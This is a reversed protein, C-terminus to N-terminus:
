FIKMIKTILISTLAMIISMPIPIDVGIDDETNDSDIDMLELDGDGETLNKPMNNFDNFM